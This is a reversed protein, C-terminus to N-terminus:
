AARARVGLRVAPRKWSQRPIPSPERQRYYNRVQVNRRTCLTCTQPIQLAKRGPAMLLCIRGNGTQKPSSRRKLFKRDSVSQGLSAALISGTRDLEVGLESAVERWTQGVTLDVDIALEVEGIAQNDARCLYGTKNVTDIEMTFTWEITKWYLSIM